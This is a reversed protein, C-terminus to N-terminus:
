HRPMAVVKDLEGVQWQALVERARRAFMEMTYPSMAIECRAGVPRVFVLGGRVEIEPPEKAFYCREM